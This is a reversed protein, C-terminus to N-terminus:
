PDAGLVARAEARFEEETATIARLEDVAAALLSRTWEADFYAEVDHANPPGLRQLEDEAADFDLAFRMAGDGGRKMRAADRAADMAFRDLCTKLYTRFRAKTPDYARFWRNEFARAFFGQVLDRADEPSRNWRFRVHKYTPKTYARVIVDFSRARAAPDDSGVSAIASPRTPPFRGSFSDRGM